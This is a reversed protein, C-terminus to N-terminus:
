YNDFQSVFVSLYLPSTVFIGKISIGDLFAADVGYVNFCHEMCQVSYPFLFALREFEDTCSNWEINYKFGPNTRHLLYLYPKIYCYSIYHEIASIKSENNAKKLVDISVTLNLIRQMAVSSLRNTHNNKQSSQLTKLGTFLKNAM